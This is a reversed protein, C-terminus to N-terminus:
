RNDVVADVEAKTTAARIDKKLATGGDLHSRITSMADDYFAMYEDSDIIKMSDDDNLTNFTIPFFASEFDPLTGSARHDAIATRVGIMNNQAQESLSFTKDQHKFGQAILQSTRSDIERYRREKIPQLNDSKEYDDTSTGDGKVKTYTSTSGFDGPASVEDPAGDIREVVGLEVLKPLTIERQVNSTAVVLGDADLYVYKM